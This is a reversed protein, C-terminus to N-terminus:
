ESRQPLFDIFVVKKKKKKRSELLGFDMADIKDSGQSPLGEIVAGLLFNLAFTQVDPNVPARCLQQLIWIHTFLYQFLWCFLFYSCYVVNVVLVIVFRELTKMFNLPSMM